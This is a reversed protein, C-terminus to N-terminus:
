NWNMRLQVYVRNGQGLDVRLDSKIGMLREFMGNLMGIPDTAALFLQDYWKPDPKLKMWSRIPELALGLLAGGVPTVILDQYSPKEFLAETGFEYMASALASYIFSDFEGFGRERARTYYASGFYPHGIYNIGISDQDWEPNQVNKWWRTFINNKADKSWNSVSEPMVYFVAITVVQYSFILATDRGMGVWDRGWKVSDTTATPFRPDLFDLAGAAEVPEVTHVPGFADPFGLSKDPLLVYDPAAAFAPAVLLLALIAVVAAGRATSVRV